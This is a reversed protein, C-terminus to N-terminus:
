GEIEASSETQEVIATIEEDTIGASVIEESAQMPDAAEKIVEEPVPVPEVEKKEEKKGTFKVLFLKGEKDIVFQNNQEVDILPYVYDTADNTIYGLRVSNPIVYLNFSEKIRNLFDKDDSFM